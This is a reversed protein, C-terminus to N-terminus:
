NTFEYTDETCSHRNGSDDTFYASYVMENANIVKDADEISSTNFEMTEEDLDGGISKNFDLTGSSSGTENSLVITLGDIEEGTPGRKFSVDYVGDPDESVSIERFSVDKCLQNYEITEGADDFLNGLVGWLIGVAVLVLLIIILTAVVASLGRKNKM